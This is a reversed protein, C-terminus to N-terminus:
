QESVAELDSRAIETFNEYERKMEPKIIEIIKYTCSKQSKYKDHRSM